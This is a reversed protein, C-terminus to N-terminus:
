KPSELALALRSSSSLSQYWNKIMWAAFYSSRVNMYKGHIMLSVIGIGSASSNKPIAYGLFWDYRGKPNDGDLSGTKGGLFLESRESNSLAKYFSKHATGYDVTSQMLQSLERKLQPTFLSSQEKFPSNPIPKWGEATKIEIAKTYDLPKMVGNNALARIITLAHLPSLTTRTTYGCANEALSFGSDPAFYNSQALRSPQPPQNFGLEIATQNLKKAGLEIGLLAFAPNVSKAFAEEMSIVDEKSAKQPTIQRQFLTYYNGIQTLPDNPKKHNARLSALSTIIKALSAAPFSKGLILDPKQNLSDAHSEAMALIKGSNLDCIAVMGYEPKFRLLYKELDQQLEPNVHYLYRLTDQGLLLTDLGPYKNFPTFNKL